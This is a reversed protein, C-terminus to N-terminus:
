GRLDLLRESARSAVAQLRAVTQGYDMRTPGLVGIVGKVQRSPGYTSLILTCFRFQSALNESGIVIQLGQGRALQQLLAGLHRTEELVELVEQLRATESFEPQRLLNRVGDHVVMAEAGVEFHQLAEALAELVEQELPAPSLTLAHRVMDRDAGLLEQNLKNSLRTLTAQDTLVSLPAVQQRVLNGEVVLVLLVETPELCVLDLHKVRAQSGHPATAIAANGTVQALTSAVRDVMAQGDASVSGLEQDIFARVAWPIEELDMLFDVFYRYGRDTPVRGASTHPKLVYGQDALESLENRITASSLNIFRSQALSKSGVPVGTVTFDEVVARLIDQKRPEMVM